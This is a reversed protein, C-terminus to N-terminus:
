FMDPDRNITITNNEVMPFYADINSDVVIAINEYTKIQESSSFKSRTLTFNCSKNDFNCSTPYFYLNSYDTSSNRYEEYQYRWSINGITNTFLENSNLDVDTYITFEDSAFFVDFYAIIDTAHIHISIICLSILTIFFIGKRKKM